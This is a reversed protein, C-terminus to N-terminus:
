NQKHNKVGIKTINYRALFDNGAKLLWSTSIIDLIVPPFLAFEQPLESVPEKLRRFPARVNMDRGEHPRIVSYFCEWGVAKELFDQENQIDLLFPIYLEEDDSRHSREM